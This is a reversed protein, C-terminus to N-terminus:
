FRHRRRRHKTGCCSLVKAAQSSKTPRAGQAAASGRTPRKACAMGARNPQPKAAQHPLIGDQRGIKM